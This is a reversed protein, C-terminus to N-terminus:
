WTMTRRIRADCLEIFALRRWEKEKKLKRLTSIVSLRAFFGKTNKLQRELECAKNTLNLMETTLQYLRADIQECCRTQEALLEGVWVESGFPSKLHSTDFLPANM